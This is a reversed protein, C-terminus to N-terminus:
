RKAEQIKAEVAARIFEDIVFPTLDSVPLRLACAVRRVTNPDIYFTTDDRSTGAPTFHPM